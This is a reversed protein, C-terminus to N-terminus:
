KGAAQTKQGEELVAMKFNPIEVNSLLTSTSQSQPSQPGLKTCVVYENNMASPLTEQAIQQLIKKIEEYKDSKVHSDEHEVRDGTESIDIKGNERM